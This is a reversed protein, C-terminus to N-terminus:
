RYLVFVLIGHTLGLTVAAIALPLHIKLFRTRLKRRFLGTIFTVCILSLTAIGLPRVMAFWSFTFGGSSESGAQEGAFADATLALGCVVVPLVIFTIWGKM